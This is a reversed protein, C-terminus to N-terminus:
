KQIYLKNSIKPSVFHNGNMSQIFLFSEFSGNFSAPIFDIPSTNEDNENLYTPIEFNPLLPEAQRFFSPSLAKEWAQALLTLGNYGPENSFHIGDSRANIFGDTAPGSYVQEIEKVLKKQDAIVSPSTKELIYSVESVVWPLQFGVQKRTAAIVKSVNTFYSDIPPFLTDYEGQHWLIARLGTINAYFQLTKALLHYPFDPRSTTHVASNEVSLAWDTSSTSGMAANLFLIPVNNRQVLLDGLLGYCWSTNGTPFLNLPAVLKQFNFNTLKELTTSYGVITSVREYKDTSSPPNRFGNGQANSQGAILFVDGIGIKELQYTNVLRNNRYSRIILNYWGSPAEIFSSFLLKNKNRLPICAIEPQLEETEPSISVLQATISDVKPITHGSILIKGKNELDRQFVMRTFPFELTIQAISPVLLSFYITIILISRRKM